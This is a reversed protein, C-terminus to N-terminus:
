SCRSAKRRRTVILTTVAFVLGVLGLYSALLAPKDISSMVGGVPSPEYLQNVGAESEVDPNNFSGDSRELYSDGFYVTAFGEAICHFTLIVWTVEAPGSLLNNTDSFIIRFHGGATQEITASAPNWNAHGGTFPESHGILDAQTHDWNVIIDCGRIDFGTHSTTLYVDFNTCVKVEPVSATLSKTSIEQAQLPASSLTICLVILISSLIIM